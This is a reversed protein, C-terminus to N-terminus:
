GLGTAVPPCLPAPGGQFVKSGGTVERFIQLNKQLFNRFILYLLFKTKRISFLALIIYCHHHYVRSGPKAGSCFLATPLQFEASATAYRSIKFRPPAYNRYKKELTNKKASCVQFQNLLSFPKLPDPPMSGRFIKSFKRATIAIKTSKSYNERLNQKFKKVRIRQAEGFVVCKTRM